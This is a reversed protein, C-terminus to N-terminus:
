LVPTQQAFVEKLGAPMSWLLANKLYIDLVEQVLPNGM